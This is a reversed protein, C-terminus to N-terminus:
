FGLFGTKKGYGPIAKGIDEKQKTLNQGFQSLAGGGFAGAAAGALPALGELFGPTRERYVNEDFQGLGIQGLSSLGHAASLQNQINQQRLQARIAGLRESLDTGATVASNRFGSSSLGGSGMGAFQESLGPITEERFRRLEPQSIDNFLENNNSLLSRYYDATDGFAGGAGKQMGSRLLQNYLGEQGPRLNSVKEFSGPTGTFFSM